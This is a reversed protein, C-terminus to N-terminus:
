LAFRQPQQEIFPTAGMAPSLIPYGAGVGSAYVEKLKKWVNKFTSASGKEHVSVIGSQCGPPFSTNNGAATRNVLVSARNKLPPDLPAALLANLSASPLNVANPNPSLQAVHNKHSPAASFEIRFKVPKLVMPTGESSAEEVKCRLATATTFDDEANGAGEPFSFGSGEVVIGLREVLLGVERRTKERGDKGARRSGPSAIGELQLPQLVVWEGVVPSTLRSGTTTAESPPHHNIVSSLVIPSALLSITSRKPRLPPLTTHPLFSSFERKGKREKDKTARSDANEPLFMVNGTEKGMKVDVGGVGLGVGQYEDAAVYSWGEDAVSRNKKDERVPRSVARNTHRHVTPLPPFPPSSAAQARVLGNLREAVADMTKQLEPNTTRPEIFLPLEEQGSRAGCGRGSRARVCENRRRRLQAQSGSGFHPGLGHGPPLLPPPIAIASRRATHTTSQIQSGQRGNRNTTFRDAPVPIRHRSGDGAHLRPFPDICRDDEISMLPSVLRVAPISSTVRRSDRQNYRMPAARASVVTKHLSTKDSLTDPRRQPFRWTLNFLCLESDWYDSSCFLPQLLPKRAGHTSIMSGFSAAKRKLMGENWVTLADVGVDFCRENEGYKTEGAFVFAIGSAATGSISCRSQLTRHMSLAERICSKKNEQWARKLRGGFVGALLAARAFNRLRASWIARRSIARDVPVCRGALRDVVSLLARTDVSTRGKEKGDDKERESAVGRMACIRRRGAVDGSARMTAGWHAYCQGLPTHTCWFRKILRGTRRSPAGAASRTHRTPVVGTSGLGALM